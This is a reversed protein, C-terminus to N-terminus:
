EHRLSMIPDARLAKRAPGLTAVVGVLSLVLIVGGFALPDGPGMGAVLFMTLPRATLWALVLGVAMGVGLLGFAQRGILRVVDAPTAGLAMRLGLERVKSAVTYSILGYLGVACLVLALLGISGLLVAGIQSPLLAFALAQTTPKSQVAAGADLARLAQSIPRALTGPSTSARVLYSAQNRLNQKQLWPFYLAQAKEEGLSFYTSDAAVGVVTWRNEERRVERGIANGTGFLRHALTQNLIVVRPSNEGDAETFERGARIEIGMTRFYDPGVNNAYYRVRVAQEHNDTWMSGGAVWSDNLPMVDLMTVSEVGPIRRLADRGAIVHARRATMEPYRDAVLWMQTWVTHNVDFRPSRTSALMLSRLFLFGTALLVVSVAIQGAVLVHRLRTRPGLLQAEAPKLVSQLDQRSAKWAPMLGSFLTAAVAVIASYLALRWDPEVVLRATVQM